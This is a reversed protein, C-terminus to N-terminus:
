SMFDSWIYSSILQFSSWCVFLGKQKWWVPFLLSSDPELNLCFSGYRGKWHLQNRLSLYLSGEMNYDQLFPEWLSGKGGHWSSQLPLCGSCLGTVRETSGWLRGRRGVCRIYPHLKKIPKAPALHAEMSYRTPLACLSPSQTWNLDLTAASSISWEAEVILPAWSTYRM